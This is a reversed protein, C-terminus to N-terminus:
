FRAMTGAHGYHILGNTEVARVYDAFHTGNYNDASTVVVRDGVHVVPKWGPRVAYSDGGELTLTEYPPNYAVVKGTVVKAQAGYASLAVLVASVSLVKIVM